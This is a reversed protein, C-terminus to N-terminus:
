CIPAGFAKHFAKASYTASSVRTFFQTCLSNFALINAPKAAVYFQHFQVFVSAFIEGFLFTTDCSYFLSNDLERHVSAGSFTLLEGVTGPHKQAIKLLADTLNIVACSFPYSADNHLLENNERLLRRALFNHEKALHHLVRLGLEGTGRFDTAPDKGQFGIMGWMSTIRDPRKSDPMLLDWTEELLQEHQTNSTDYPRAALRKLHELTELAMPTPEPEKGRLQPINQTLFELFTDFFIEWKQSLMGVLSNNKDNNSPFCSMSNSSPLLDYFSSDGFGENSGFDDNSNAFTSYTQYTARATTSRRQRLNNM